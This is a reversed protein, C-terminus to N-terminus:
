SFLFYNGPEAEELFMAGGVPTEQFCFEAGAYVILGGGVEADSEPFALETGGTESEVHTNPDSILWFTCFFDLVTEKFIKRITELEALKADIKACM